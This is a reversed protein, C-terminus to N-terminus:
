RMTVINMARAAFQLMKDGFLQEPIAVGHNSDIIGNCCFSVAKSSGGLRQELQAVKAFREM